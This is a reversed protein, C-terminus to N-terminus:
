LNNHWRPCPVSERQVGGGPPGRETTRSSARGAPMPGELQQDTEEVSRSGKLAPVVKHEDKFGQSCSM